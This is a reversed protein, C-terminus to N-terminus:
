REGSHLASGVNVPVPLIEERFHSREIIEGSYTVKEYGCQVVDCHDKEAVSMMKEYM